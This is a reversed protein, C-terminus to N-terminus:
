NLNKEKNKPNLNKKLYNILLQIETKLKYNLEFVLSSSFFLSQLRFNLSMLLPDLSRKKELEHTHKM